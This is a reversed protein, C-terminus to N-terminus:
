GNAMDSSHQDLEGTGVDERMEEDSNSGGSPEKQTKEDAIESDM